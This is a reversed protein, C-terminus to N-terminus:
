HKREKLKELFIQFYPFGVEITEKGKKVQEWSNANVKFSGDELKELFGKKLLENCSKQYDRYNARGYARAIEIYKAPNNNNMKFYALISIEVKTWPLNISVKIGKKEKRGTLDEM